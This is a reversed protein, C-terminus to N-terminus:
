LWAPPHIESDVLWTASVRYKVLKGAAQDSARLAPSPGLREDCEKKLYRVVHNMEKTRSSFPSPRARSIKEVIIENRRPDRKKRAVGDFFPGLLLLSMDDSVFLIASLINV